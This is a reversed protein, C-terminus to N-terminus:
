SRRGLIGISCDDKTAERLKTDILRRLRKRYEPNKTQRTPAASVAEILKACAPALEKTRYDYLSASTGDSMQVFGSVGDLGGRFLRMSDAANASTVFITQNAFEDNDPTSVVRLEGHKVYGIVGDGIHVAVFRDESVAVALFTSALDALSCDLRGAIEALRAHLRQLIDRRSQEADNSAILSGFLEALMACGEEAVAQAGLESRTASGAGDALCLVQVGIRSLYAARDQGRSGDQEHARGRVQYHFENFV